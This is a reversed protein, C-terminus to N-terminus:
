INRMLILNHWLGVRFLRGRILQLRRQLPSMRKVNVLSELLKYKNKELKDGYIELFKEAQVICESTNDKINGRLLKNIAHIIALCKQLPGKARKLAGVQAGLLNANHQRYRITQQNISHIVGFSSAVLAIWWDHMVIDRPMPLALKLLERNFMVTCGTVVNQLLLRNLSTPPQFVRSRLGQYTWFSPHITHLDDGVVSLDTHILLPINAGYQHELQVISELSTDVKDIEWFDDQDCLMIYPATSISMLHAFNAEAAGTVVGDNIFRIRDPFRREYDEIIPVTSDTSGDDHILLQWQTNSQALISELQEAVYKEGNFTALLIDITKHDKGSGYPKWAKVTVFERLEPAHKAKREAFFTEISHAPSFSEKVVVPKGKEVARSEAAITSYLPRWPMQTVDVFGAKEVGWQLSSSNFVVLHRPPELGRWNEGYKQHGLSDINPTDIWIWGGPKLLSYCKELLGIPDYVHEIVHSLTVGDFQEVDSLAEMGGLRVDLGRSRAFEVAKPDLDVGLVDWGAGKARLLFDGNGCGFDMLRGGSVGLKPIHRMGADLSSSYTPSLGVFISGIPCSPLDNTGFKIERYGNAITRRFRRRVGLSDVLESEHTYYSGYALGITEETPRTQLYATGCGDCRCMRWEGPATYFISDRLTQHLLTKNTDGCVPCLEVIEVGDSPWDGTVDVVQIKNSMHM